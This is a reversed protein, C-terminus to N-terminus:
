AAKKSKRACRAVVRRIFTDAAAKNEETPSDVCKRYIKEAESLEDANAKPVPLGKLKALKIQPFVRGEEMVKKKYFDRTFSSNFMLALFYYWKKSCGDLVFGTQVSRGFAVGVEDVVAIPISATQRWLLKPSSEYVETAIRVVEGKKPIQKFNYRVWRETKKAIWYENIDEGKWYMIDKANERKGEYLLRDALDSKGKVALGVGVRQYNIGSDKLEILDTLLMFNESSYDSEGSPSFEFEERKRVDAISVSESAVFHLQQEKTRNDALQSVDVFRFEYEESGDKGVIVECCPCVVGKGFVGDGLNVISDLKGMRVLYERVDKTRPQYLVGAPLVYGLLGEDSLVELGVQVFLKYIEKHQKCVASYKAEITERFQDINAGWPPNGIVADFGAKNANAGFAWKWNFKKSLSLSDGEKLQDDLHELEKGASASELWLSMKALKVARPNIDVGFICKHLIIQKAEILSVELDDNIESELKELYKRALYNLAASLFHGSGMAPDCVKLKLVEKSSLGRCKDALVRRVLDQVVYDPTYYSGTAKRDENDPSFYLQSKCVKPVDMKRIKDSSLNAPSWTGKILAMDEVARQIRYELFTEYISGLQRPSFFNYPIQQYARGSVDSECYGLEFLIQVMERNVLKNNKVFFWEERSFISERFAEIEFNQFSSSTGAQVMETLKLLREYLETGNPDYSFDKSFMRKLTPLNLNDEERDPKFYELKDITNSISIKRYEPSQKLPLINRAECYRIFLINFLHSESVNRITQLDSATKGAARQFGNCAHTMAKVFRKKLDEEIKGAYKKSYELLDDLFRREGNEPHLAQKAFIHFFYKANELFLEYDKGDRDLGANVHKMLHGLNFQFNRKYSDSSLERNFLRWTKGDTLIGYDKGLIEMYKLCQEDFDLSRTADSQDKKDSRGNDDERSKKADAIRGWYKAEIPIIVTSRAEELKKDGKKQEIYKLEKPDNVIILDPKYTRIEGGEKVTFPEDEAWPEQTATGEYGLMKLVPKVFRNITNRESWSDVDAGELEVCLNRFQNCFIYFPGSVDMDWLNKFKMPVDNQLYVENFLSSQWFPNHNNSIILELQHPEPVATPKLKKSTKAM